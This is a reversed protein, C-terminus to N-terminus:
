VDRKGRAALLDTLGQEIEKLQIDLGISTTGMATEISCQRPPQSPDEVIEPLQSPQLQTDLYRRWEAANQPHLRLVVSTAGNIQELAVRVIGALLLPDLQAERHMIKRAISLALQVVETEVREMYAARYQDFDALAKAIRSREGALQAQFQERAAAEGQARGEERAMGERDARQLDTGPRSLQDSEPAGTTVSDYPFPQTARSQSATAPRAGAPSPSTSM